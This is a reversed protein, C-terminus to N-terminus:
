HLDWYDSFKGDLELNKAGLAGLWIAEHEIYGLDSDLNIPDVFYKRIGASQERAFETIRERPTGWLGKNKSDSRSLLIRYGRESLWNLVRRTDAPVLRFRYHEHGNSDIFTKDKESFGLRRWDKSVHSAHAHILKKMEQFADHNYVLVDYYGSWVTPLIRVYLNETIATQM